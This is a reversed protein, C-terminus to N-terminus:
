RTAERRPALRDLRAELREVAERLADVEDFFAEQEARSVLDRREEVLHEVGGRLLGRGLERGQRLAERLAQAIQVGLVEGFVGAFADELDPDFDAALRQLQRALEVDGEIRLQGPAAAPTGPLLRSLVAGLGAKLRLDPEPDSAAPGVRIRGAEVRLEMGLPPAALHLQIRRGELEALRERAEPDLALARGLAAELLAGAAPLAARLPNPAPPNMRGNYAPHLHPRTPAAAGAVPLRVWTALPRQPRGPTRCTRALPRVGVRVSRTNGRKAAAPSASHQGQPM